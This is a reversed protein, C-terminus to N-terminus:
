SERTLRRFEIILSIKEDISIPKQRIGSVAKQYLEDSLYTM